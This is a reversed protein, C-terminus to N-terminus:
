QLEKSFSELQPKIKDAVVASINKSQASLMSNYSRATAMMAMFGVPDAECNMLSADEIAQKYQATTAEFQAVQKAFEDRNQQLAFTDKTAIKLKGIAVLTAGDVNRYTTSRNDSLKTIDKIVSGLRVQAAKCQKQVRKTQTEDLVVQQEQKRQAVRQELTSGPAPPSPDAAMVITPVFMLLVLVVLALYKYKNNIFYNIM